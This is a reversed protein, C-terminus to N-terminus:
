LEKERKQREGSFIFECELYSLNVGRKEKSRLRYEWMRTKPSNSNLM